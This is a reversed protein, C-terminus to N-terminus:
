DPQDALGLGRLIFAQMIRALAPQGSPGLQERAGFVLALVIPTTVAPDTGPSLLGADGAEATLAAIRERLRGLPRHIRSVLMPNPPGRRDGRAPRRPAQEGAWAALAAIGRRLREGPDAVRDLLQDLDHVFREVQAEVLAELVQEIDPFYNYLTARSVGARRAVTAMVLGRVGHSAVLEAASDLIRARTRQKHEAVSELWGAPGAPDRGVAM